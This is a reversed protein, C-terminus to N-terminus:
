RILHGTQPEPSDITFLHDQQLCECLRRYVAHLQESKPMAGLADLLRCALPGADLLRRIAPAAPDNDPVLTHALHHWLDRARARPADLGFLALYEAEDIIFQGARRMTGLLIRKLPAVPWQRQDAMSSMREDALAHVTAAILATVALDAQPCEQIDIVRIEISGRDFRAICGRSNLWEHRLIEDPDHPAIDRYMRQLIRQEYDRRTFVPEPIVDGTVSPIRRANRRYVDLRTDALGTPAGDAVPSSAALAPIIPLVLRIAAHLRGFEDDDGFPLNIHTSQLNAWGHGRCSFIRDYAEYVPSYEHPWLKLERHPDMWPHMATPMLRANMPELIANIRHVHNAFLGALPALSPVPRATKLEIVHLALENSWSIVGQPGDPEADSTFEGAVARIVEDAIPRVALSQADVIMYELEIGVAQGLKLPYSYRAHM